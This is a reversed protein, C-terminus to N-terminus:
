AAAAVMAGATLTVMVSVHVNPNMYFATYSGRFGMETSHKMKAAFAHVFDWPIAMGSMCRMQLQIFGVTITIFDKEPEDNM